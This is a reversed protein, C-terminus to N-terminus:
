EEDDDSLVIINLQCSPSSKETVQRNPSLNRLPTEVLSAKPNKVIILDTCTNPPHKSPMVEEKPHPQSNSWSTLFLREKGKSSIGSNLAARETKSACMVSSNKSLVISPSIKQLTPTDYTTCTSGLAGSTRNEKERLKFVATEKFSPQVKEMRKLEDASTSTTGHMAAAPLAHKSVSSHVSLGLIERAWKDVASSKGELAEVLVNLESIKYRFLFFRDSWACSCLQKAHHLCSYRDPSCPCGAASLHLDYLCISCERKTTSDFDTKMDQIQSSNCLYERRRGEQM